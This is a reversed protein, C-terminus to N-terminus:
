KDVFRKGSSSFGGRKRYFQATTSECNEELDVRGGPTTSRLIGQALPENLPRSFM